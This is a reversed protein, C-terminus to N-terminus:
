EAKPQLQFSKMFPEMYDTKGLPVGRSRLIAYLMNLHFYATPIPYGHVYDVATAEYSAPGFACPVRVQERGDVTAPEVGRLVKETDALLAQLEALDFEKTHDPLTGPPATGTLREVAKRATACIVYVQARLPLMDPYLRAGLHEAVSTGAAEAHSAGKALVHKTTELINLLVPISISYLSSM